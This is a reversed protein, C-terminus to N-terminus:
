QAVKAFTAPHVAYSRGDKTDLWGHEALTRLAARAADASRIARGPGYRMVDRTTVSSRHERRLWDLLAQANQIADPVGVSGILRMYEGMYHQMLQIAGLMTEVSVHIAEPDGILTLVGALRCTHEAAKSAWDRVHELSNGVAQANEIENYSQILIACAEPSLALCPPDLGGVEHDEVPRRKLLRDLAQYYCNLRPDCDPHPADPNHRRTGALSEPAAILWRALFGQSRFLPRGLMRTAVEPQVLLHMSLRRGYLVIHEHDTARVRDLPAGQWARSLMAITRLEAEESMAHGGLFQGGEDTFIGQGFQGEALSRILGEATPESCILWPKKPRPEDRISKIAEAYAAPTKASDRAKSRALKNAAVTAEYERMQKAFELSMRKVHERIPLQAVDDAATKRDGSGLITLVFVSLPRVGGLTQVNSLPQAALAATALVTNAALAAPVQVIEEIARAAPALVPGLADTPFPVAPMVPPVLPTPEPPLASQSAHGNAKMKAAKAVLQGASRDYEEPQM